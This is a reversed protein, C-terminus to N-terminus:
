FSTFDRELKREAAVVFHVELPLSELSVCAIDMDVQNSLTEAARPKVVQRLALEAGTRLGRLQQVRQFLVISRSFLQSASRFWNKEAETVVIAPISSETDGFSRNQAWANPSGEGTNALSRAVKELRECCEIVSRTAKKLPRLSPPASLPATAVDGESLIAVRQLRYRILSGGDGISLSVPEIHFPQRPDQGVDIIVTPFRSWVTQGVVQDVLLTTGQIHVDPVLDDVRRAVNAVECMLLRDHPMFLAVTYLWKRVDDEDDARLICRHHALAATVFWALNGRPIEALEPLISRSMYQFPNEFRCSVWRDIDRALKVVGPIWPLLVNTDLSDSTYDSDQLGNVIRRLLMRYRDRISAFFCQVRGVHVQPVSVSICYTPVLFEDHPDDCEERFSLVAGCYGLQELTVLRVCAKVGQISEVPGAEDLAPITADRLLFPVLWDLADQQLNFSGGLSQSEAPTGAFRVGGGASAVNAPSVLANPQHWATLCRPGRVPCLVGIVVSCVHTLALKKLADDLM